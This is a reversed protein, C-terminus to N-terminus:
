ASPSCPSSVGAATVGGPCSYWRTMPGPEADDCAIRIGRCRRVEDTEGRAGRVLATGCGRGGGRQPPSWVAAKWSAPIGREARAVRNGHWERRLGARPFRGPQNGPQPRALRADDGPRLPRHPARVGVGNVWRGARTVHDTAQSTLTLNTKERRIAMCVVGIIGAVIGAAFLGIATLTISATM